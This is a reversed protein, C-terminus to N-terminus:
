CRYCAGGVWGVFQPSWPPHGAAPDPAYLTARGGSPKATVFVRGDAALTNGVTSSGPSSPDLGRRWRERLPPGIAPGPVVGSHAADIQESVTQAAAPSHALAVAVFIAAVGLRLRGRM